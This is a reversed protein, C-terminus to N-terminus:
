FRVHREIVFIFDFKPTNFQYVKHYKAVILNEKM